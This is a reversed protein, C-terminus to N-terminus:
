KDLVERVTKLLDLPAIPKPLFMSREELMGKEILAERTYVSIALLPLSVLLTIRTKLDNWRM